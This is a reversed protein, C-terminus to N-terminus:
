VYVKGMRPGDQPKAVAAPHELEDEWRSGRLYTTPDPAFGDLWRRDKRKRTEVDAIIDDAKSDLRRSKWVKLSDQKKVKKPYTKWFDAFRDAPKPQGIKEETDIDIDIHAVNAVGQSVERCEEVNNIEKAKQRKEAIRERDKQRKDEVTALNRYYEYNVIKWGWPRDPDILVIRRGDEAPSRSYKDSQSLLELGEEIIELPISTRAAIAPPTQDVVGDRDALVILQQFTVIAKWQGYLTGEYISSFIKGYM